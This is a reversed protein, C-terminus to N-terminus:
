AARVRHICVPCTSSESWMREQTLGGARPDGMETIWKESWTGGAAEIRNRYGIWVRHVASNGPGTLADIVSEALLAHAWCLEVPGYPTFLAGCAPEQLMDYGSDWSTVTLNPCGKDNVGCRLCAKGQPILVAHAAAANPEVWGYLIPPFYEREQQVDNLFNEAAWNGMTSVILDCSTVKDMLSQAKPGVRECLSSIDGLHPYAKIIKQELRKAKSFNVSDAGLAHRGVNPWELIAPDVLLLNGIGAQALLNALGGGLSGCGLIAVRMRHLREQLPDQDRGHIWSHDAREVTAKTVKVGRSLYRNISLAQPVHGPRFGDGLTNRKERRMVKAHPPRITITGFCAGNATSAGLLVDISEANSAVIKKFVDEAALSRERALARVDAATQPYEDPLLPEPLWLLVGKYFTYKRNKSPKAGRRPLWRELAEPNEGVIHVSNGHWVTIERSPGQPELISIYNTVSKDAALAWYSLFELRFDEVNSGNISEEILRCADGLIYKTVVAPNQSSVATDSSLICLLGDKELHPWVLVNPGDAIAIRPSSYPFEEDALVHLEHCVGNSFTVPVRWGPSFKGNHYGKTIYPPLRGAEPLGAIYDDVQKIAVARWNSVKNPSEDHM